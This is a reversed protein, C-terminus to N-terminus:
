TPVKGVYPQKELFSLTKKPVPPVRSSILSAANGGAWFRMQHSVGVFLGVAFRGVVWGVSAGTSSKVGLGSVPLAVESGAVSLGVLSIGTVSWGPLGDIDSGAVSLGSGIDLGTVALGVDLGVATLLVTDSAVGDDDYEIELLGKGVTGDVM